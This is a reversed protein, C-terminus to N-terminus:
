TTGYSKIRLILHRIRWAPVLLYILSLVANPIRNEDGTLAALSIYIPYIVVAFSLLIVAVLEIRKKTVQRMATRFWVSAAMILCFTSLIAIGLTWGFNFSDGLSDSVTKVGFYAALFGWAAYIVYGLMFFLDFERRVVLPDSPSVLRVFRKAKRM